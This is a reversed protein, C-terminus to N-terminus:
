SILALGPAGAPEVILPVVELRGPERRASDSELEDDRAQITLQPRGGKGGRRRPVRARVVPNLLLRLESELYRDLDDM